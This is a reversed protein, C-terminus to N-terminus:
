IEQKKSELYEKLLSDMYQDLAPYISAILNKRKCYLHWQIGLQKVKNIVEQGEPDDHQTFFDLFKDCLSKYVAQVEEKLREQARRQQRSLPKEKQEVTTPHQNAPSM